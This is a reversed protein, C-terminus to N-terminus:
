ASAGQARRLTARSASARSAEAAEDAKQALLAAEDAGEANMWSFSASNVVLEDRTHAIAFAKIAFVIALVLVFVLLEVM